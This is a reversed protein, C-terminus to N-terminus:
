TRSPLGADRPRGRLVAQPPGAAAPAGGVRWRLMERGRDTLYYYLSVNGPPVHRKGDRALFEVLGCNALVELLGYLGFGETDFRGGRCIEAAVVRRGQFGALVKLHEPRLRLQPNEENSM